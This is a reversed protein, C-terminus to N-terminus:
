EDGYMDSSILITELAAMEILYVLFQLKHREAFARFRILDDAIEDLALQLEPQTLPSNDNPLTESKEAPPEKLRNM